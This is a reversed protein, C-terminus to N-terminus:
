PAYEIAGRTRTTRANGFWDFGYESGLGSEGSTTNSTLRFDKNQWDVFPNGTGTTGNSESFASGGSDIYHNHNHTFPAPPNAQDSPVSYTLNNAVYNGSYRIINSIGFTPYSGSQFNIFTNHYAKINRCDEGGGGTWGGIAGNQAGWSTTSPFYVFVNGYVRMEASTNSANDWIIGGTGQISSVLNYRFVSNTVASVYAAWNSWIQGHIPGGRAAWYDQIWCYEVVPYNGGSMFVCRGIDFFHCHSITCNSGEGFAVADNYSNSGAGYFSCHKITVNDSGSSRLDVMFEASNDLLIGYPGEWNSPGGGITGDVTFYGGTFVLAGTFVAQGDGYADSWGTDTGHLPATAKKIRIVQTGSLSDDFTYGSYSGDAIWYTTDRALTSPLSTYANTWDDGSGSGSAGARVYKQYTTPADDVEGVEAPPTWANGRGAAFISRAIPM